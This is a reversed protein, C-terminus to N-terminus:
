LLLKISLRCNFDFLVSFFVMWDLACGPSPSLLCYGREWGLWVYFLYFIPYNQEKKHRLSRFNRLKAL